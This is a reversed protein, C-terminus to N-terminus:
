FRVWAIQLHPHHLDTVSKVLSPGCNARKQQTKKYFLVMIKLGLLYCLHNYIFYNCKTKSHCLTANQLTKTANEQILHLLIYRLFIAIARLCM